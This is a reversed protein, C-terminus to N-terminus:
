QNQCDNYATQCIDDWEVNCCFTDAAIVQQYCPDNQDYPSPAACGGEPPPLFTVTETPTGTPTGDCCCNADAALAGNVALLINNFSYLPSL